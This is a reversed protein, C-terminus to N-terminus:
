AGAQMTSNQLREVVSSWDGSQWSVISFPVPSFRFLGLQRLANGLPQTANVFWLAVWIANVLLRLRYGFGRRWFQSGVIIKAIAAVLTEIGLAIPQSMFFCFICVKLHFASAGGSANAFLPERPVIGCHMLGSFGFGSLAAWVYREFQDEALGFLDSFAHGPATVAIIFFSHWFGGRAWFGRVGRRLVHMPSGFAPRHMHPSWHRDLFGALHAFLFCPGAICELLSTFAWCSMGVVLTRLVAASGYPELWSIELNTWYPDKVVLYNHVVDLALYSLPLQWALHVLYQVEDAYYLDPPQTKDHHEEGIIIYQLRPSFLVSTAKTRQQRLFQGENEPAQLRTDQLSSFEWEPHRLLNLYFFWLLIFFTLVDWNGMEWYSPLFALIYFTFVFAVLIFWDFFPLLYRISRPGNIIHATMFAYNSPPSPM